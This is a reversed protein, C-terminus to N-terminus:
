RQQKRHETLKEAHALVPTLSHIRETDHYNVNWPMHPMLTPIGISLYRQVNKPHDDVALCIDDYPLLVDLKNGGLEVVHLHDFHFGHQLLWDQTLQHAQPHWGRATIVVLTFGMAMLQQTLEIAGPEPLAKELAQERLLIDNLAENAISFHETLDYHHWNDWHKDIGTAQSMIQYLTERLKALVDDLDLLIHM